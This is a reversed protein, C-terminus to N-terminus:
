RTGLLWQRLWARNEADERPGLGHGAADTVRVYRFRRSFGSRAYVPALVRETEDACAIPIIPDQTRNVM